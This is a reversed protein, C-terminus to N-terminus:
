TVSKWRVAVGNAYRLDIYDIDAVKDGVIKPYVKVFHNLRTLVDKHGIHLKVGNSLTATWTMTPTLELRAIKFHLPQLADNMKAFTETMLIQEGTPGSFQPLNTPYTTLDPAFLEGQSSLISANNWRAVPNKENITIIVQNPWVKQVVVEAIWPLQLIKEKIRDVKVAFFGQNVFPSVLTEIEQHAVHQVGYVKVHAVPFFEAHYLKSVSCVFLIFLVFYATKKMFDKWSFPFHSVRKRVTGTRM